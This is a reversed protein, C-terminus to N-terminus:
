RQHAQQRHGYERQQSVRIPRTAPISMGTISTLHSQNRTHKNEEIRGVLNLAGLSFHDRLVQCIIVLCSKEGKALSKEEARLPLITGSRLECSHIPNAQM